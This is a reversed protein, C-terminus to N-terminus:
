PCAVTFNWATGTTGACNPTVRVQISSSAGAFNLTVSDGGSVCGTNYLTGGEYLVEMQDKIDFMEYSFVFAGSTAGMNITVFRPEDNGAQTTTSCDTSSAVTAVAVSSATASVTSVAQIIDRGEKNPATYVGAASISGGAGGPLVSWAVGQDATGSVNATFTQSKDFELTVAPPAVTVEVDELLPQGGTPTTGGNPRDAGGDRNFSSDPDRMRNEVYGPIAFGTALDQMGRVAVEASTEGGPLPATGLGAFGTAINLQDNVSNHLHRMDQDSVSDLDAQTADPNTLTNATHRDNADRFVVILAGATLAGALLLVPVVIQIIFGRNQWPLGATIKM